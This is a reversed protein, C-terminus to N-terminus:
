TTTASTAEVETDITTMELDLSGMDTTRVDAEIADLENSTSLGGLADTTPNQTQNEPTPTVPEPIVVVSQQMPLYWFYFLGALALLLIVFLTGLIIGLRSEKKIVTQHPTPSAGPIYMPEGSFNPELASPEKPM